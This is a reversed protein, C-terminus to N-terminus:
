QSGSTSAFSHDLAQLNHRTRLSRAHRPERELVRSVVVALVYGDHVLGVDLLQAVAEEELRAHLDALPVSM